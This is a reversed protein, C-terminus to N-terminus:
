RVRSIARGCLRGPNRTDIVVVDPSESCPPCARDADLLVKESM